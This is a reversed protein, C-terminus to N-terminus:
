CNDCVGLTALVILLGVRICGLSGMFIGRAFARHIISKVKLIEVIRCSKSSRPNRLTKYDGSRSLSIQGFPNAIDVQM